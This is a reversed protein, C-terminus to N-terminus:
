FQPDGPEVIAYIPRSRVSTLFPDDASRWSAVSVRHINVERGLRSEAHRAAEDLDDEDADGVVLVDVDHPPPGPEGGYRAAWSGYIYSEQVGPIAPLLDALVASPGYTLALLETLPRALPGTLDARLLRLNGRREARILGAETLRDAERSVTSQSVGFRRALETVSASEEPHLYIWALLEGLLPSRLLPLLQSRSQM